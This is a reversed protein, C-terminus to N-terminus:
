NSRLYVGHSPILVQCQYYPWYGIVLYTMPGLLYDLPILNVGLSKSSHEYILIDRVRKLSAKQKLLHCNVCIGEVPQHASFLFSHFTWVWISCVYWAGGQSAWLDYCFLLCFPESTISSKLSVAKQICCSLQMYSSVVITVCACSSCLSLGSFVGLPLSWPSCLIGGCVSSSNVNSLQQSSLWNENITHDRSLQFCELCAGGEFTPPCCLNCETPKYLLIFLYVFLFFVPLQIPLSIPTSSHIQSSNYPPLYLWFVNCLIRLSNMFINNSSMWKSM